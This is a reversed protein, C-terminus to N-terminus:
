ILLLFGLFALGGGVNTAAPVKLAFLLITLLAPNFFCAWAPLSTWGSIVAVFLAVSYLLCGLYCLYMTLSTKKFFETIVGLANRTRDLRM